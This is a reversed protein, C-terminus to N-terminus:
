MRPVGIPSVLSRMPSSLSCGAIPRNVEMAVRRTTQPSDASVIPAYQVALVSLPDRNWRYVYLGAGLSPEPSLGFNQVAIAVLPGEDGTYGELSIRVLQQQPDFYYTLSGVLDNGGSGTVLPVRMGAWGQESAVTAVRPWRSVVWQPPVDIRLAEALPVNPAVPLSDAAGFGAESGGPQGYVQDRGSQLMQPLRGDLAVYPGVLAAGVGALWVRRDVM